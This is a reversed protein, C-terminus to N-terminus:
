VSESTLTYYIQTFPDLDTADFRGVISGIPSMQFLSMFDSQLSSLLILASCHDPHEYLSVENVDVLFQSQEFVPPNDNVNTM